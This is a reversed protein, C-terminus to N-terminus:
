QRLWRLREFIWRKHDSTLLYEVDAGCKQCYFRASAEDIEIAPREGLVVTVTAQGVIEVMRWAGNGDACEVCWIRVSSDGDYRVCEALNEPNNPPKIREIM